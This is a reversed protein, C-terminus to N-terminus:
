SEPEENDSSTNSVEEEEEDSYPGGDEDEEDEDEEEKEDTSPGTETNGLFKFGLGDYFNGQGKEYRRYKHEDEFEDDLVGDQAWELYPRKLSDSLIIAVDSNELSGNKEHWRLLRQRRVEHQAKDISKSASTAAFQIFEDISIECANVRAAMLKALENDAIRAPSQSEVKRAWKLYEAEGYLMSLMPKWLVSVEVKDFDIQLGPLVTDNVDGGGSSLRVCKDEEYPREGVFVARERDESLHSFKVVIDDLGVKNENVDRLVEKTRVDFEIHTHPLHKRIFATETAAKFAHSVRRCNLWVRPLYHCDTVFGIIRTWVELPLHPCKSQHSDM